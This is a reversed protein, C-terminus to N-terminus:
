ELPSPPPPEPSVVVDAPLLLVDPVDDDDVVIVVVIAVVVVLRLLPAHCDLIPLRRHVECQHHRPGGLFSLAFLLHVTM